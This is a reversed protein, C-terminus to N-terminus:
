VCLRPKMASVDTLEFKYACVGPANTLETYMIASVQLLAKREVLLASM